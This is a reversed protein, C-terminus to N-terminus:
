VSRCCPPPLPLWDTLLLAAVLDQLPVAHQRYSLACGCGSGIRVLVTSAIGQSYPLTYQLAAAAGAASRPRPRQGARTARVHLPGAAAAARRRQRAAGGGKLLAGVHGAGAGLQAAHHPAGGGPAAARLLGAFLLYDYHADNITTATHPQFASHPRATASAAVMLACPHLRQASESGTPLQDAMSCVAHLQAAAAATLVASPSVAAACGAVGCWAM